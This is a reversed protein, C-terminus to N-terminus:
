PKRRFPTQFKNGLKGQQELHIMCARTCGKSGAIAQGHEYITNPKREFPSWPGPATDDRNPIYEGHEGDELIEGGRFYVNCRKMDIDGWEVEHGALNAKVTRDTPICGGPCESACLMCRDCLYPEMIPDPELEAETMMVALRQRPGFQPTLFMKSYGIEGLGCLFAAIRLHVMVDPVPKGPEVPRNPNNKLNGENDIARWPSLHGLPIAEYGFDEIYKAVNMMTMPMYLWNLAGYGMSSYNSFFTGEEIGRLSGRMVRFGFAIISKAEPMIFRPDMQVPAGEWRDPTGIGVLDAGMAKAAQKVKEATLM